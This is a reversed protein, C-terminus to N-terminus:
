NANRTAFTPGPNFPTTCAANHGLHAFNIMPANYNKEGFRIAGSHCINGM